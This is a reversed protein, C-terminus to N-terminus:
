IYSNVNMYKHYKSCKSNLEKIFNAVLKLKVISNHM